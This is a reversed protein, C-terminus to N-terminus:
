SYADDTVPASGHIQKLPGDGREEGERLLLTGKFWSPPRPVATLEGTANPARGRGFVFKTYELAALFGSIAIMKLIRFHM